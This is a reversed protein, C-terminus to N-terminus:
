RYLVTARRVVPFKLPQAIQALLQADPFTIQEVAIVLAGPNVISLCVVIVSSEILVIGLLKRQREERTRGRESGPTWLKVLM